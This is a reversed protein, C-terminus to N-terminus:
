TSEIKTLPRISVLLEGFLRQVAAPNCGRGEHELDAAEGLKNLFRPLTSGEFGLIEVKFQEYAPLLTEIDERARLCTSLMAKAMEEEPVRAARQAALILGRLIVETENVYVRHELAASESESMQASLLLFNLQWAELRGLLMCVIGFVAERDRESAFFGRASPFREVCQSVERLLETIQKCFDRKLGDFARFFRVTNCIDTKEQLEALGDAFSGTLRGQWDAAIESIQGDELCAFQESM